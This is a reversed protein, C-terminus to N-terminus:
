IIRYNIVPAATTAGTDATVTIERTNVPGGVNPSLVATFFNGAAPNRVEILLVSGADLLDSSVLFVVPTTNPLLAFMTLTGAASPLAVATTLSTAQTVAERGLTHSQSKSSQSVISGDVQLNTHGLSIKERRISASQNSM